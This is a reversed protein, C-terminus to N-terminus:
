TSSNRSMERYGVLFRRVGSVGPRIFAFPRIHASVAVNRARAGRPAFAAHNLLRRELM